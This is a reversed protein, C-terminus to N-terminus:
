PLSAFLRRRCSRPERGTAFPLAKGARGPDRGRLPPHRVGPRGPRQRGPRRGREPGRDRRERRDRTAISDRGVLRLGLAKAFDAGECVTALLAGSCGTM